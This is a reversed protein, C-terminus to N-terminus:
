ERNELRQESSGGHDCGVDPANRLDNQVALRSKEDGRLIGDGERAGDAAQERIGAQSSPEALLPTLENEFAERRRVHCARELREVRLQQGSDARARGLIGAM